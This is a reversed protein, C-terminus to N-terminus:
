QEPGGIIPYPDYSKDPYFTGAFLQTQDEVAIRQVHCADIQTHKREPHGWDIGSILGHKRCLGVMFGWDGKWSPEGNINRVVDCALGYHHTGVKDLRTVGKLFLEHQRPQSRYTEFIMLDHGLLWADAMLAQVCALTGEELLETIRIRDVSHFAPSLCIVDTYFSIV